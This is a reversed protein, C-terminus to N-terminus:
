IAFIYSHTFVTKSIQLKFIRKIQNETPGTFHCIYGYPSKYM